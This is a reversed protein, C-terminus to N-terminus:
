QFCRGATYPLPDLDFTFNKVQVRQCHELNVFTLFGTFTLNAGGGDIVLDTVNSFGIFAKTGGPDLRYDGPEFKVVAPTHAAANSLATQINAFTAAKKIEFVREPPRVSFNRAASWPGQTGTAAVVAVRWWYEGTALEQDPVYRSIVAAIRDTDVVRSFEKDRAIQIAYAPMAEPKAELLHEWQFHPISMRLVAGAAPEMLVPADAAHLGAALV